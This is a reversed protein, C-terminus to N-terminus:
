RSRISVLARASVGGASEATVIVLNDQPMEIEFRYLRLLEQGAGLRLSQTNESNIFLERLAGNHHYIWTQFINGATYRELVLARQGEIERISVAGATDHQRIKTTVYTLTTNVEFSIEGREVTSSYVDAGIFVVILSAATFACFLALTFLVDVVHKGGKAKTVNL